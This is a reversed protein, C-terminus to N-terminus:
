RHKFKDCILLNNYRYYHIRNLSATQATSPRSKVIKLSCIFFACFISPFFPFKRTELFMLHVSRLLVITQSQVYM